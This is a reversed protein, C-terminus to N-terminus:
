GPKQFLALLIGQSDWFMTLMVNGATPRFKLKSSKPQLHVPINGNCQLLSPQYHHVWSEDGSVIRKLMDEGEDIYWLLHQLPLDM